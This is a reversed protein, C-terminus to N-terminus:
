FFKARLYNFNILLKFKQHMQMVDIIRPFAAIYSALNKAHSCTFYLIPILQTLFKLCIERRSM